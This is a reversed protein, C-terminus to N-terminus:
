RLLLMKKSEVFEGADIRYFYIGSAMEIGEENKGDWNVHYTGAAQKAEGLKRVRQGLQNYITLRVTANKTLQYRIITSPNFPNPYNQDIAFVRPQENARAEVSTGVSDDINLKMVYYRDDDIATKRGIGFEERNDTDVNGFAISTAFDSRGWGMGRALLERFENKADDIIAFRFHAVTHRTIGIEDRGDRDVDGFAISTPYALGGWHDGGAFLEAFGNKFDDFIFYRKGRAANKGIGFEEIGDGDVDGFAISTAFESQGWDDGGSFLTTFGNKADDLIAFRFHAITHRTIGVEDMGDEDVDGFAISTTYAQQGWNESGAILQNFGANADDFIYYRPGRSANRGVAFEALGDGDVDGFAICTAFESQGWDDGGSFLTTFGNKADDLIAFRFHAITHRTIGIEDMGDGDVDGFAISTAYAQGGWGTGGSFIVSFNNTADDCIFYRDNIGIYRSIGFEDFGDGDVDGFAVSTAYSSIGWARGGSFLQEDISSRFTAVVPMTENLTRVNDASHLPDVFESIGTPRGNFLIDPNSFHQIRKTRLLTGPPDVAMITMFKDDPDRYGHSYEYAGLHFDARDHACGMNHGLEHALSYYGTACNRKVVSFALSQFDVSVPRMIRATGCDDAKDVILCVLDANFSDRLIHADDLYGDRPNLLREADDVVKGTEEYQVEASQVLRITRNVGSNLYAVNTETVALEILADIADTGGEAVRADDTYVVLVDLGDDFIEQGVGIELDAELKDPDRDPVVAGCDSPFAGEDISLLAHLGNGAYRIQYFGRPLRINGSVVNNKVVLVVQSSPVDKVHGVWTYSEQSRRELRDFEVVVSSDPSLRLSVNRKGAQPYSKALSQLLEFNVSVYTRTLITPDDFPKVSKLAQEASNKHILLENKQPHSGDATIFLFLGILLLQIANPGSNSKTNM